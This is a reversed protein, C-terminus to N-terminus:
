QRPLKADAQAMSRYMSPEEKVVYTETAACNALALVAFALVAPTWAGSRSLKM